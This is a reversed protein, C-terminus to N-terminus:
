TPWGNRIRMLRYVVADAMEELEEQRLEKHTKHFSTDGYSSYGEAMRRRAECLIPERREKFARLCQVYAKEAHRDFFLLQEDLPISM